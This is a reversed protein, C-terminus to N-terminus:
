PIVVIQEPDPTSLELRKEALIGLTRPSKLRALETELNKRIDLLEEQRELSENIRYGTRTCQVGCWTRLFFEFLFVLLLVLCACLLKPTLKASGSRSNKEEKLGM